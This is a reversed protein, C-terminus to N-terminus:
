NQRYLLLLSKINNWSAPIYRSTYPFALFDHSDFISFVYEFFPSNRAFARQKKIMM